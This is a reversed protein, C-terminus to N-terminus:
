EFLEKLQSKYRDVSFYKKVLRINEDRTKEDLKTLDLRDIDLVEINLDSLMNYQSVDNRMFVKKGLGLLTITNGMGQQRKHGFMAIDISSLIEIYEDFSLYKLLPKFKDGYRKRGEELVMEANEQDGYSLPVVVSFNRIECKDLRDFLELHNNEPDASNGLLINIGEHNNHSFPYDKFLNSPYMLCDHFLAQSGYWDRALEYDGRIYTVIRGLKKIVQRRIFERPRLGSLVKNKNKNYAYLDGGWLMWSCKKLLWPHLFLIFVILNNFLGHLIINNSLYMDKVLSIYNLKNNSLDLVNVGHDSLVCVGADEKLGYIYFTHESIELESKLFEIFPFIFKDGSSVHVIKKSM